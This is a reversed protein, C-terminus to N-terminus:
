AEHDDGELEKIRSKLNVIELTAQDAKTFWKINEETLYKIRANYDELSLHYKTVAFTYCRKCWELVNWDKGKDGCHDIFKFLPEYDIVGFNNSYVHGALEIKKEM